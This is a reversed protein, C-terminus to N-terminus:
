AGINELYTSDFQNVEWSANVRKFDVISVSSFPPFYTLSTMIDRKNQDKNEVKFM